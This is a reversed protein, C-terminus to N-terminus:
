LKQFSATHGDLCAETLLMSGFDPEDLVMVGLGISNVLQLYRFDDYNCANDTLTYNYTGVKLLVQNAGNIITVTITQNETDFDWVIDGVPYDFPDPLFTSPVFSILSWEGDLNSTKPADDDNNCSLLVFSMCFLLLLKKM